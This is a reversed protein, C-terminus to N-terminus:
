RGFLGRIHAGLFLLYLLTAIWTGVEASVPRYKRAYELIAIPGALFLVKGLAFVLSGYHALWAFLPNGEGHGAHLWRLSVVLDGVGVLLLCLTSLRVPSRM